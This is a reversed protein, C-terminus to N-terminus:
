ILHNFLLQSEAAKRTMCHAKLRLTRRHGHKRGNMGLHAVELDIVVAVLQGQNDTIKGM